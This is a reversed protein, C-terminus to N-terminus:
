TGIDVDVTFFFWVWVRRKEMTMKGKKKKDNGHNTKVIRLQTRCRPRTETCWAGQDKKKYNILQMGGM